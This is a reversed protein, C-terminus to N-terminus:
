VTSSLIVIGDRRLALRVPQGPELTLRSYSHAPFRVELEHENPLRVRLIRFAHDRWTALIAADVLNERVVTSLPRDPYVVKVDEPRIYATVTEGAAGPEPPAHLVLGDWDLVTDPGAEVCRARFLNRIGLVAAVEPSIPRRFVEDIPGVQAIRGAALVAIRDGLAFADEVRHTVYVVVLGLDRQLARLEQQLLERVGAEFAAFPEDLLLLPRDAALARAIAVRQQQGGSLEAPRLTAVHRLGVRDLLAAAKTRADSQGRLSYAVNEEATLHPFLAYDQFVYGVRRRRAPLRAPSGPRGRRFFTSDDFAIEGEDPDVLGAILNLTTTKGSGSPGFLVLVEAGVELQVALDLASFRKRVDIRLRPTENM